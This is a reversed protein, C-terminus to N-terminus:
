PVPDTALRSLLTNDVRHGQERTYGRLVGEERFGAVRACALMATNAPETRVALRELGARDILWNAALTLARGGWGRGRVAPALWLGLEARRHRWDFEQATLEGLCVDVGHQTVTLAAFTGRSWEAEAREAAAGLEAGSPPRAQGLRLHLTPDDQYAILIEPIDREASPRLDIVGDTLPEPLAPLAPM